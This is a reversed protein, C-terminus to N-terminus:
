HARCRLPLLAAPVDTRDQGQVTMKAPVAAQACLWAIPVVPADEVVAPRLTLTKGFIAKHASNGFVIHIAGHDLTVSSVVANVIKEPPPLGAAANDAPFKQAALWEAQVAPKVVDALPLAEAIQDRVLKDLYTPLAIMLLIMLVALATMVEILTFGRGPHQPV